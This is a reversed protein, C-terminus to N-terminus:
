KAAELVAKILEKDKLRPLKPQDLFVEKKKMDVFYKIDDVTVIVLPEDDVTGVM